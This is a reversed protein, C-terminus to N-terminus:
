DASKIFMEPNLILSNIQALGISVTIPIKKNEFVFEYKEIIERIREAVIFASELDTEPLLCCFEEGGYRAFVDVPRISHHILNAFTQLIFDGALHGYSDNINKFLDLDMMLISLPRKYRQYRKFESDLMVGLHRRNYIGTLGDTTNIEILKKEYIAIDTVDQVTIFLHSIKNSEDRLPGITCNQQMFAFQNNSADIPKLPFLYYHIKQSCFAFNGFTLTTKTNRRFWPTDLNPFQQFIMQGIIDAANIRSQMEMWRNWHTVILDKDLIVIGINVMEFIQSMMEM